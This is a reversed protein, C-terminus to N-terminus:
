ETAASTARVRWAKRLPPVMGDPNASGATASAGGRLRRAPSNGDTPRRPHDRELRSPVAKPPIRTHPQKDAAGISDAERLFVYNLM